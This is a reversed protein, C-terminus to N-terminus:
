TWGFRIWSPDATILERRVEASCESLCDNLQWLAKRLYKKSVETTYHEGWLVSAISERSNPKDRNLLLYSFLERAKAHGFGTLPTGDWTAEFRGLLTVHLINM